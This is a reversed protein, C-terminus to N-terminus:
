RRYLFWAGNAWFPEGWETVSHDILMAADSASRFRDSAAGLTFDEVPSRARAAPADQEGVSTPDSVYFYADRGNESTHAEMLRLRASAAQEDESFNTVLSAASHHVGRSRLFNLTHTPDILNGHARTAIRGYVRRSFGMRHHRYYFVEVPAYVVTRAPLGNVAQLAETLSDPRRDRLEDAVARYGLSGVMALTLLVAIPVRRLLSGAHLKDSVWQVGYGACLLIPVLLPLTYRPYVVGTRAIPAAVVLTAGLLGLALWRHRPDLVLLIVGVVALFGGIVIGMGGAHYVVEVVGSSGIPLGSRLFNGMVSKALRIPDVWTYPCTLVLGLAGGGAFIAAQRLRGLWGIAHTQFILALPIVVLGAVTIKSAIAAAFLVGAWFINRPARRYTLCVLCALAFTLSLTDATAMVSYRLFLPHVALSTAALAAAARSGFLRVVLIYLLIPAASSLSSVILRVMLLPRDPHLYSHGLYDSLNTLVEALRGAPGYQILLDIVAVPMFLLQLTSAPWALAVSPVGLFRDLCALTMSWEDVTYVEGSPPLVILILRTALIAGYCLAVLGVGRLGLRRGPRGKPDPEDNSAPAVPPCDPISTTM